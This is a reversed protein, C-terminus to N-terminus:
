QWCCNPQVVVGKRRRMSVGRDQQLALLGFRTAVSLTYRAVTVRLALTAFQLRRPDRRSPLFPSPELHKWGEFEVDIRDSRKKYLQQVSSELGIFRIMIRMVTAKANDFRELINKGNAINPASKRPPNGGPDEPGNNERCQQMQISIKLRIKVAQPLDVLNRLVWIKKEEDTLRNIRGIATGAELGTHFPILKAIVLFSPRM